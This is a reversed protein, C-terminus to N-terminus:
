KKEKKHMSEYLDNIEKKISLYQEQTLEAIEKVEYKKCLEEATMGVKAIGLLITKVDEASVKNNVDKGYTNTADSDKENDLCFLGALCYKRAYSSASGTLQCGDSKKREFDERAHAVSTISTSSELDVLTAQAEVYYRDGLLRIDNSLYLVCQNKECLPKVTKLIDECSRYNYDGFDNKHGKPVFLESQIKALKEYVSM